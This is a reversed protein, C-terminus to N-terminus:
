LREELFECAAIIAEERTRSVFDARWKRFPLFGKGPGIERGDISGLVGSLIHAGFDDLTSMECGVSGDSM